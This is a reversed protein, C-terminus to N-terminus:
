PAVKGGAPLFWQRALRWHALGFLLFLPSTHKALGKYRAKRHHFLNKVVPFPHEVNARLSAKTQERGEQQEAEPSQDLARRKGPRM